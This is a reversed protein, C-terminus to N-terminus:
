HPKREPFIQQRQITRGGAGGLRVLSHHIERAMRCVLRQVITAYKMIQSQLQDPAKCGAIIFAPETDTEDM